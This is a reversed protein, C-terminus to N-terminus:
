ALCVLACYLRTQQPGLSIPGVKSGRASASNEPFINSSRKEKQQSKLNTLWDLPLIDYTSNGKWRVLSKNTKINCATSFGAFVIDFNVLVIREQQLLFPGLQKFVVGNVPYIINQSCANKKKAAAFSFFAHNCTLWHVWIFGIQPSNTTKTLM